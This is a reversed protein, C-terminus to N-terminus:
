GNSSLNYTNNVMAVITASLNVRMAYACFMGFFGLLTLVYRKPVYYKGFYSFTPKGDKNEASDLEFKM